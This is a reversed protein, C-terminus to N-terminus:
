GIIFIKHSAHSDLYSENGLQSDNGLRGQLQIHDHLQMAALPVHASTIICYLKRYYLPFFFPRRARNKRGASWLSGRLCYSLIWTNHVSMIIILETTPCVSLMCLAKPEIGLVLFDLFSLLTLLVPDCNYEVAATRNKPLKCLSKLLFICKQSQLDTM